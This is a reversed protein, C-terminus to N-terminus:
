KSQVAFYVPIFLLCLLKCYLHNESENQLVHAQDILPARAKHELPSDQLRRM